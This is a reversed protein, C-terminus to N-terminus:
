KTTARIAKLRKRIPPHTLSGQDISRRNLSALLVLASCAAEPDGTLKAGLRDTALEIHQTILGPAVGLLFAGSLGGLMSATFYRGADYLPFVGLKLIVVHCVGAVMALVVLKRVDHRILHALEHAAVSRLQSANMHRVLGGGFLIWRGTWATGTACANVLDGPIVAMRIRGLPLPATQRVWQKIADLNHSFHDPEISKSFLLWPKVAIEFLPFAAVVIPIGVWLAISNPLVTALAVIGLGAVLYGLGTAAASRLAFRPANLQLRRRTAWRFLVVMSGLIAHFLLFVVGILTGLLLPSPNPLVEQLAFVSSGLLLAASSVLLLTLGMALHDHMRHAKKSLNPTTPHHSRAIALGLGAVAMVTVSVVTLGVM